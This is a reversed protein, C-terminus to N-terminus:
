RNQNKSQRKKRQKDKYMQKDAINILEDASLDTESNYEAFGYSVKIPYPHDKEKDLQKLHQEIRQWIEKARKVNVGPFILVFEDGGFRSVIDTDRVNTKLAKSVLKIMKDGEKHGYSDNIVKLNNIDVFCITVRQDETIKKQLFNMGTRRNLVGTMKDTTAYEKLKKQLKKLETIDRLVSVVGRIDGKSNRLPSMSTHFYITEKSEQKFKWEYFVQKGKLAQKAKRQHKLVNTNEFVEFINKEVFDEKNIGKREFGLGFAETYNLEKDLTLVIDEMSNVLSRFKEESKRLKVETKERKNLEQKLKRQLSSIRGVVGGILILIIWPIWFETEFVTMKLPINNINYLSINLPIALISAIIGGWSGFFSSIVIVPIVVVISITYPAIYYFNNFLLCYLTISLVVYVIKKFM